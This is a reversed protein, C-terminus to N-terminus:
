RPLPSTELLHNFRNCNKLHRQIRSPEPCLGRIRRRARNDDELAAGPIMVLSLAHLAEGILGEHRHRHRLQSLEARFGKLAEAQGAAQDMVPDAGHWERFGCYDDDGGGCV